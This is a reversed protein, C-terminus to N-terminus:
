LGSGDEGFDTVFGSAELDRYFDADRDRIANWTPIQVLPLLRHPVSAFTLDAQDTSIGSAVAEESYLPAQSLERLTDSKVVLTSSRQIMTVHAGEEWLAGAIDHASNNAGVVVVV